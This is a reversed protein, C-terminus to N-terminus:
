SSEEFFGAMEDEEQCRECEWEERYETVSEACAMRVATRFIFESIRKMGPFNLTDVTDRPTHYFPSLGTVVLLVPIEQELFAAHDARPLASWPFILELPEEATNGAHCWAELNTGTRAAFIYLRSKENLRGTMDLNVALLINEHPVTPYAAWFRAGLLGKEEGDTFLFLISRKPATPLQKLAKAVSLLVAVSGANDDAGPYYVPEPFERAGLHDYHACLVIYTDALEPDSGPLVALVNQGAGYDEYVWEPIEQFTPAYGYALLEDAIFEAARCGHETGFERGAYEEGTLTETVRRLDAESIDSVVTELTPSDLGPPYAFHIEAEAGRFFLLTLIFFFAARRPFSLPWHDTTLPRCFLNMM